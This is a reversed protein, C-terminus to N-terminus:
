ENFAVKSITMLWKYQLKASMYVNSLLDFDGSFHQFKFTVSIVVPCMSEVLKIAYYTQIAIHITGNWKLYLIKRSEERINKKGM